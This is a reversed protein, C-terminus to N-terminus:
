KHEDLAERLAAISRAFLKEAKKQGMNFGGKKSPSYAVKYVEALLERNNQLWYKALYNDEPRMKSADAHLTQGLKNSLGVRDDLAHGIEHFLVGVKDKVKRIEGGTKVFDAVRITSPDNPGQGPSYRGAPATNKSGIPPIRDISVFSVDGLMKFHHEPVLNLGSRLEEHGKGSGYIKM